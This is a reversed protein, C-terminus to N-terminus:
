GEPPPAGRVREYLSTAIEEAQKESVEDPPGFLRVEYAFPGDAFIISYEAHPHVDADGTRDISEQTAIRQGGEANPIGDVEFEALSFACTEPCPELGDAHLLDVVDNAESESGFQMVLTAVHPEDGVHEAGAQTPFFRFDLIAAVFDAEELVAMEEDTATVLHDNMIGGLGQVGTVTRRTEVPDAETGPADTENPVREELVLPDATNASSCAAVAALAVVSFVILGRKM